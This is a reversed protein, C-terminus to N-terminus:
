FLTIQTITERNQLKMLFLHIVIVGLKLKEGLVLSLWPLLAYIALVEPMVALKALRILLGVQIL